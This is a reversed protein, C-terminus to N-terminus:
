INGSIVFKSRINRNILTKDLVRFIDGKLAETYSHSPFSYQHCAIVERILYASIIALKSQM